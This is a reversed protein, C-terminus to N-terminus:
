SAAPDTGDAYALFSGGPNEADPRGSDRGVATADQAPSRVPSVASSM